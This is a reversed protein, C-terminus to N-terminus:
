RARALDLHEVESQGLSEFRAGARVGTGAMRRQREGGGHRSLHGSDPDEHAGGGVHAGLLGPAFGHVAAGVDPGEADHQHLHEGALGHIGALGHGVRQCANQRALGLPFCSGSSRGGM